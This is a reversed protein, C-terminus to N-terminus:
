KVRTVTLDITACDSARRVCACTEPGSLTSYHRRQKYFHLFSKQRIYVSESRVFARQYRKAQRNVRLAVNYISSANMRLQINM